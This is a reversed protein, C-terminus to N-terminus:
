DAPLQGAPHRPYTQLREASDANGPARPLLTALRGVIDGEWLSSRDAGIEIQLYLHILSNCVSAPPAPAELSRGRRAPSPSARRGRATDLGTPSLSTDSCVGIM